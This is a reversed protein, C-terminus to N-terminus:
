KIKAAIKAFVEPKDKALTALSKRDLGINAKKCLFMFKSYTLGQTRAAANIQMQWLARFDRKKTRRHKYSHEGSHLIAEKAFKIKSKRGHRFGKTQALINRRKKNAITGRKVRPM